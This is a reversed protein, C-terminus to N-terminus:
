NLKAAQAQQPTLTARLQRLARANLEERDYAADNRARDTSEMAKVKQNMRAQDPPVGTPGGDMLGAVASDNRDAQLISHNVLADSRDRYTDALTGIGQLQEPSLNPLNLVRAIAADVKEQSRFAEPHTQQLIARRFAKADSEPLAAAVTDISAAQTQEVRKLAAQLSERARDLVKAQKDNWIMTTSRYTNGQDNTLTEITSMSMQAKVMEGIYSQAAALEALMQSRWAQLPSACNAQGAPSLAGAAKDLDVQLWRSMMIGPAGDGRISELARQLGRRSRATELSAADVGQVGAKVNDFWTDEIRALEARHAALAAVFQDTTQDPKPMMDNASGAKMWEASSQLLDAALTEWVARQAEQVGLRTRLTEIDQRSLPKAGPGGLMAPMPMGENTGMVATAGAVKNALESADVAAVAGAVANATPAPASVDIPSSEGITIVRVTTTQVMASQMADDSADGSVMVITQSAVAGSMDVGDPTDSNTISSFKATGEFGALESLDIGEAVDSMNITVSNGPANLEPMGATAAIDAANDSNLKAYQSEMQKMTEATFSDSLMAEIAAEEMTERQKQWEDLKDLAAKHQTPDLKERMSMPSPAGFGGWVLGGPLSQRRFTQMYQAAQPAPLLTAIDRVASRQSALLKRKLDAARDAAKDDMSATALRDIVPTASVEWARTKQDIATQTDAPLGKLGPVRPLNVRVGGLVASARTRTRADADRDLAATQETSLGAARMADFMTRETGRTTEFARAVTTRWAAEAATDDSAADATAALAKADLKTQAPRVSQDRLVTWQDVCADFAREMAVRQTDSPKVDTIWKQLDKSRLPSPMDVPGMAGALAHPACVLMCAVSCAIMFRFARRRTQMGM